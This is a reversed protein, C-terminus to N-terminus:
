ANPFGSPYRQHFNWASRIISDLDSRAPKWGLERQVLLSDSVLEAPDGPRRPASEYKIPLSTIKRCVEIVQKVSFGVGNGLNFVASTKGAQLYDLALLHADALDCVHIYDRVCTGDPTPYDSGFVRLIKPLRDALEPHQIRLAAKLVLPILHSEPQHDEGIRGDPDAGAANFYRLAVWCLDYALGLDHLMYEFTLKSCGYPNVPRTPHNETLPLSQPQGYVAATSSFVITRINHALMTELLVLGNCVNNRYYKLPNRVSEGVLSSACLHVVMKVHYQKFIADLKERDGVSGHVWVVSDPVAALHGTSLDDIVIVEREANILSQVVHAGIYGAGGCILVAQDTKM